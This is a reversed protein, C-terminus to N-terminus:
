SEQHAPSWEGRVIDALIDLLEPILDAPAGEVLMKPTGDSDGAYRYGLRAKTIEDNTYLYLLAGDDQKVLVEKGASSFVHLHGLRSGPNCRIVDAIVALLPQLFRKREAIERLRRAEDDLAAKEKQVAEKGCKKSAQRNASLEVLIDNYNMRQEKPKPAAALIAKVEELLDTSYRVTALDSEQANEIHFRPVDMMERDTPKVYDVWIWYDSPLHQFRPCADNHWSHDAFERQEFYEPM